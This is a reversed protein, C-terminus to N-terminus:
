VLADGVDSAVPVAVELANFAFIRHFEDIPKGIVGFVQAFDRFTKPRAAAGGRVQYVIGVIIGQRKEVVIDVAFRRM